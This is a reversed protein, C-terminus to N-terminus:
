FSNGKISSIWFFQVKVTHQPKFHIREPQKDFGHNKLITVPNSALGNLIRPEIKPPPPHCSLKKKVGTM